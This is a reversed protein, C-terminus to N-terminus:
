TVVFFYDSTTFTPTSSQSLTLGSNTSYFIGNYTSVLVYQPAQAAIAMDYYSGYKWNTNTSNWLYTQGYNSSYYIGKSSSLAAVYQGTTDTSVARFSAYLSNGDFYPITSPQATPTVTPGRSPATTTPMMTPLATPDLSAADSVWHKYSQTVDGGNAFEVNAASIKKEEDIQFNREAPKTFQVGPASYHMPFIGNNANGHAFNTEALARLLM